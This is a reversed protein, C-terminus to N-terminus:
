LPTVQWEGRNDRCANFRNTEDPYGNQRITQEVTRCGPPTNSFGANNSVRVTSASVYGEVAGNRTLILWDNDTRGAVTIEEGARLQYVVRSATSPGSRVNVRGPSVYVPPASQISGITEVGPQYRLDRLAPAPAAYSADSVINVTGRAGSRPDYWEQNRGTDLATRVAGQARDQGDKNMRCGIYNGAAAGVGAGVVAGLVRENKSVQSGALAGALGGIIAGTRDKQGPNSCSFLSSLPNAAAPAAMSLSAAAAALMVVPTRM